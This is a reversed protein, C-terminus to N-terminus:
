SLVREYDHMYFYTFYFFSITFYTEGHDTTKLSLSFVRKIILHFIGLM